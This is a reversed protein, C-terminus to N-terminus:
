ALYRTKGLTGGYQPGRFFKREKKWVDPRLIEIAHNLFGEYATYVLVLAPIEYWGGRDDDREAAERLEVAAHWIERFTFREGEWEVETM